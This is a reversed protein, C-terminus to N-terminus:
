MEREVVDRQKYRVENRSDIHAIFGTALYSSAYLFSRHAPELNLAVGVVKVRETGRDM